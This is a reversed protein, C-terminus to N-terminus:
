FTHDWVYFSSVWTIFWVLAIVALVISSMRAFKFNSKYFKNIAKEVLTLLPPTLALLMLLLALSPVPHFITIFFCMVILLICWEYKKNDIYKFVLFFALPLTLNTLHNPTLNLFWGGMPIIAVLM